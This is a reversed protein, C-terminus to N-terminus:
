AQRIFFLGDPHVSLLIDGNNANTPFGGSTTFGIPIDNADTGDIFLKVLIGVADRTGPAVTAPPINWQDDDIDLRYEDTASDYTWIVGAGDIPVYGIGDFLDMDTFGALTLTEEETDCTTNSMVLDLRLDPTPDLLGQRLALLGGKYIIDAM